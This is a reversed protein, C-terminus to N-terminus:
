HESIIRFLCAYIHYIYITNYIAHMIIKRINNQEHVNDHNLRESECIYSDNYKTM